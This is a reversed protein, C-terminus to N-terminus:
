NQNLKIPINFQPCVLIENGKGYALGLHYEGFLGSVNAVGVFGASSLAPNKFRAGLSPTQIRRTEVFHRTGENSTLVLYVRDPVDAGEVSAALWGNISLSATGKISQHAPFVGNVFNIRGACHSALSVQSEDAAYPIQIGMKEGFEPHAKIDLQYFGIEFSDKWLMSFRPAIIEISKVMKDKLHNVDSFFLGFEETSEVLPSLVFGAGSMGAIFRYERTVGNHLTLKIVLQSSKFLTNAITGLFSKKIDVKAFIPADSSPLDIQEGLSYFGGGIKRPEEFLHGSAHRNKLFLYGNQFDAPEYNSLLVPWSAGDELSPLRGDIPQMKFIINEPRNDSLLHMKNLEALKTTYVSYSQFVPRPSWTNGSAILCSQDYSYIDVSGDLRPIACRQNLEAVRADFNRTLAGPDNLRQKVGAFSSVLTNKVREKISHTSTKVYAADNYGWAVLAALLVYLSARTTLLTGALLAVPCLVSPPILAQKVGTKFALFLPLLFLLVVVSKEYTSGQVDRVLFFLIAAAAVTYLIYQSPDPNKAMGETYGSVIPLLGAFYDALGLLQQGSLVWFVACSICPIAAVLACIKWQGRRALLAILLVTIAVCAILATGKILPLLGFPVLLTLNLGIQATSPMEKPDFSRACRWFQIGVLMPYFFFLADKRALCIILAALLGIKLLPSNEKARNFNLYAAITFTIALFLSGFLMLKDTAPHYATTYISAYPGFTFIIDKGFSMGQAVAENLGYVWSPDLGESPMRPSFPVIVAAAVLLLVALFLNEKILRVFKVLFKSGIKYQVTKMM